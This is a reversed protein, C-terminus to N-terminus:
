SRPHHLAPPDICTFDYSTMVSVTSSVKKKKGLVHSVPVVIEFCVSVLTFGSMELYVSVWILCSSLVKEELYSADRM